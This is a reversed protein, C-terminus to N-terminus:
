NDIKRQMQAIAEQIGHYVMDAAKDRESERAMTWFYNAPMVGRSALSKTYRHKTGLDVLHAHNGATAWLRSKTNRRFGAYAAISSSRYDTAFSDELRGSSGHGLLLRSLNRQGARVYLQAAALQARKVEPAYPLDPLKNRTLYDVLQQVGLVDIRVPNSM